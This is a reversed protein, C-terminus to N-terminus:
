TTNKSAEVSLNYSLIRISASWRESYRSLFKKLFPVAKAWNYCTPRGHNCVPEFRVVAKPSFNVMEISNTSSAMGILSKLVCLFPMVEYTLWHYLLNVLYASPINVHLRVTIHIDKHTCEHTCYLIGRIFTLFMLTSCSDQTTKYWHVSDLELDLCLHTAQAMRCVYLLKSNLRCKLSWHESNAQPNPMWLGVTSLWLRCPVLCWTLGNIGVRTITM